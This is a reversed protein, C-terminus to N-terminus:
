RLAIVPISVPYSLTSGRHWEVPGNMEVASFRAAFAGIVFAAAMRVLVAGACSHAGAGLAVHGSVRRSVDLRDPEAFRDGDLNAEAVKLMAKEGRAIRVGAIDVDATATRVLTHVLGAHRLLEEVARPMVSADARLRAFEAPNRLLDLFANALFSPLTEAVGTRLSKGADPEALARAWPLLFDRVLDFPRGVPLRDLFESTVSAIRARWEEVKAGSLSELVQARAQLQASEDLPGSSGTQALSPERLAALVDDYRSLVWAGLQEDFHAAEAM